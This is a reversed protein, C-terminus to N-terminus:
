KDKKETSSSQNTTASEKGSSNASSDQEQNTSLKDLNNLSDGSNTPSLTGLNNLSKELIKPADLKGLNNFSENLPQKPSHETNESKNEKDSMKIDGIHENLKNNASLVGILISLIVGVIFSIMTIKDLRELKPEVVKKTIIIDEIYKSNDDLIKIVIFIAVSFSIFALVYLILELCNYVGVTSLLTVLLAIGGSSLTLIVKDREMKTTVWANLLSSYYAIEKQEEKDM